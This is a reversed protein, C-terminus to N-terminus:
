VAGTDDRFAMQRAIKMDHNQPIFSDSPGTNLSPFGAKQKDRWNRARFATDPYDVGLSGEHFGDIPHGHM